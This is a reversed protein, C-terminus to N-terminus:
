DNFSSVHIADKETSLENKNAMDAFYKDQNEIKTHNSEEFETIVNKSNVTEAVEKKQLIGDLFSIFSQEPESQRANNQNHTVIDFDLIVPKVM